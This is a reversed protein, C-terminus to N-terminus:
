FPQYSQTLVYLVCQCTVAHIEFAVESVEKNTERQKKEISREIGMIGTRM